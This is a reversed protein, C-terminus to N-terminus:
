STIEAFTLGSGSNYVADMEAETLARKWFSVPGIRGDFPHVGDYAEQAGVVWPANGAYIKDQDYRDINSDNVRIFIKGTVPDIGAFACYWTGNSWSTGFSAAAAVSYGSGGSANWTEFKLYDGGAHDFYLNFERSAAVDDKAVLVMAAGHSDFNFWVCITGPVDAGFKLLSNSDIGLFQNLSSDFARAHSYVNGTGQTLSGSTTHPALALDPYALHVSPLANGHDTEDMPWYEILDSVLDPRGQLVNDIYLETGAALNYANDPNTSPYGPYKILTGGSALAGWIEIRNGQGFATDLGSESLDLLTGYNDTGRVIMTSQYIPATVKVVTGDASTTRGKLDLELQRGQILYGTSEGQVLLDGKIHHGIASYAYSTDSGIPDHLIELGAKGTHTEDSDSVTGNLFGIQVGNNGEIVVGRYFCTGPGINCDKLQTGHGNDHIHVGIKAAEFYALEVFSTWICDFAVDAGTVHINHLYMANGAVIGKNLVGTIWINSLNADSADVIIGNEAGWIIINNLRPNYDDYPGAPGYLLDKGGKLSIATGPIDFFRLHDGEFGPGEACLGDVHRTFATHTEDAWYQDYSIGALDGRGHVALYNVTSGQCCKLDTDGVTNNDNWYFSVKEEGYYETKIMCNQVGLGFILMTGSWDEGWLSGAPLSYAGTNYPPPAGLGYGSGVRLYDPSPYSLGARDGHAHSYGIDPRHRPIVITDDFEHFGIPFPKTRCNYLYIEGM